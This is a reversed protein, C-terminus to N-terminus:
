LYVVEEDYVNAGAIAEAIDELPTAELEILAPALEAGASEIESYHLNRPVVGCMVLAEITRQGTMRIHIEGCDGCKFAYLGLLEGIPTRTTPALLAIETRRLEFARNPDTVGECFTMIKTM